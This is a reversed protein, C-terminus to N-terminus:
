SEEDRPLVVFGNHVPRVSEEVHAGAVIETTPLDLPEGRLVLRKSSGGDMNIAHICGLARMVSTVDGLTLGLAANFNRGDAALVVVKHDPTLGIALRPLLNLDGTEDTSFTMPEADGTFEERPLAKPGSTRGGELLTPGGAIASVIGKIGPLTPPLFTVKTGETVGAALGAWEPTPPLTVVFGGVPIQVRGGQQIATIRKAVITLLYGEHHPTTPQDARNFAVPMASTRRAANTGGIRFHTGGEFRLTAGKLGVSAFHVKGEDDQIFAPRAYLPPNVLKGDAILLGVPDYRAAPAEIRPESYLFFGGSFGAIGGHRAASQSFSLGAKIDARFDFASFTFRGRDFRLANLNIPGKGTMGSINRQFLGKQVKRWDSDEVLSRLTPLTAESELSSRHHIIGAQSYYFDILARVRLAAPSCGVLENLRVAFAVRLMRAGPSIPALEDLISQVAMRRRAFMSAQSEDIETALHTHLDTDLKAQLEPVLRELASFSSAELSAVGKRAPFASLVDVITSDVKKTIGFQKCAVLWDM